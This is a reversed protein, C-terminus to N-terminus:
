SDDSDDNVYEVLESGNPHTSLYLVEQAFGGVPPESNKLSRMGVLSLGVHGNVTEKQSGMSPEGHSMGRKEAMRQLTAIHLAKKNEWDRLKPTTFVM